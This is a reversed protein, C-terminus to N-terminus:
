PTLSKLYALLDRMDRDNIQDKGFGPMGTNPVGQRIVHEISSDDKYRARFAKGKLPRSPHLSNGGAPHCGACTAREFIASGRAIARADQRHATADPRSGTQKTAPIHVTKVAVRKVSIRKTEKQPPADAYAGPCVFGLLLVGALVSAALYMYLICAAHLPDSLLCLPKM